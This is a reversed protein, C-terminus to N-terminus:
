DPRITVVVTTRDECGETTLKVQGTTDGGSFNVEADDEEQESSTVDYSASGFADKWGTFAADLDGDWYGNVITSPGASSTGTFTMADPTPFDPPLSPTGSMAPASPCGAPLNGGAGADRGQDKDKDSCAATMAVVILLLVALRKM